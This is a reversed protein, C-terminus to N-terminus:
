HLIIPLHSNLKNFGPSDIGGARISLAQLGVPSWGPTTVWLPVSADRSGIAERDEEDM